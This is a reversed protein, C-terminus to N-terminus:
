WDLFASGWTFGAGFALLLLQDGAKIRGTRVAEDLAIAVSSGSTNGYKPMTECFFQEQNMDLRDIAAQIIRQNVQHPVVLNIDEPKIGRQDVAQHISTIIRTVASKFVERGRM